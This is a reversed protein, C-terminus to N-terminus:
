DTNACIDVTPKIEYNYSWQRYIWGDMWGPEARIYDRRLLPVRVHNTDQPLQLRTDEGCGVEVARSRTEHGGLIPM